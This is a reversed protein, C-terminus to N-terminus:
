RADESRAALRGIWDLWVGVRARAIRAAAAVQKPTADPADGQRAMAVTEAHIAELPTAGRKIRETVRNHTLAVGIPPDWWIAPEAGVILQHMEQDTTAPTNM